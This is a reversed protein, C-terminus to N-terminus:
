SLFNSHFGFALDIIRCYSRVQNFSHFDKGNFFTTAGVIEELFSDLIEQFLVSFLEFSFLPVTAPVPCSGPTNLQEM